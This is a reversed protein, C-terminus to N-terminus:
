LLFQNALKGLFLFSALLSAQYRNWKIVELFFSVAEFLFLNAPKGFFVPGIWFPSFVM